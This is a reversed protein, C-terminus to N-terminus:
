KICHALKKIFHKGISQLEFSRFMTDEMGVLKTTNTLVRGFISPTEQRVDDLGSPMRAELRAHDCEIESLEERWDIMFQDQWDELLLPEPRFYDHEEPWVEHTPVCLVCPVVLQGRRKGGTYSQPLARGHGGDYRGKGESGKHLLELPLDSQGKEDRKHVVTGDHRLGGRQFRIERLEYSSVSDHVFQGLGHAQDELVGFGFPEVERPLMAIDVRVDIKAVGGVCPGSREPGAGCPVVQPEKKIAGESEPFVDFAIGVFGEGRHPGHQGKPIWHAPKTGLM